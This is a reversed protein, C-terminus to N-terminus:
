PVITNEVKDIYAWFNFNTDFTGGATIEIRIPEAVHDTLNVSVPLWGTTKLSPDGVPGWATQSWNALIVGGLTAVKVRYTFKDFGSYDYTYIDYLFSLHNGTPTFVQSITNNGVPQGSYGPTGLRAMCVGEQPDVNVTENTYYNNFSDIGLATVSDAAEEITWGDLSCTGTGEFGGNILQSNVTSIDVIEVWLDCGYDDEEAVTPCGVPWDQGVTGTVPPVKLDVIWTDSVDENSKALRGTAYIPQTTSPTCDHGNFYSPMGIDGKEPDKPLRSLFPCLSLMEHYDPPCQHTAYDLPKYLLPSSKDIITDSICKPKQKIIYEVDDVRGASKFSDSLAITFEKEMYEQPFVTGFKIETPSVYLANEVHATVNIVHAEFASMAAVGGIVAVMAVISLIFKKQM